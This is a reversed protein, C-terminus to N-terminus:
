LATPIASNFPLPKLPLSESEVNGSQTFSLLDNLRKLSLIVHILIVIYFQIDHPKNCSQFLTCLNIQMNCINLKPCTIIIILTINLGALKASYRIKMKM